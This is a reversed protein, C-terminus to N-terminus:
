RERERGKAQRVSIGNGFQIWLRKMEEDTLWMIIYNNRISLSLGTIAQHWLEGRDGHSFGM